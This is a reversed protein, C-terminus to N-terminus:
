WPRRASWRDSRAARTPNVSRGHRHASDTRRLVRVALCEALLAGRGQCGRAQNLARVHDGACAAALTGEPQNGDLYPM